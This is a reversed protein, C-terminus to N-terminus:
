PYSARDQAAPMLPQPKQRLGDAVDVTGFIMEMLGHCNGM